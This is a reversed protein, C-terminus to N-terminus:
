FIYIPSVQDGKLLVGLKSLNLRLVGRRLVHRMTGLKNSFLLLVPLGPVAWSLKALGARRQRGLASGDM